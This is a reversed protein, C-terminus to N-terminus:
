ICQMLICQAPHWVQEQHTLAAQTSKLQQQLSLSQELLHSRELDLPLDAAALMDKIAAAVEGAGVQWENFCGLMQGQWWFGQFGSLMHRMDRCISILVSESSYVLAAHPNHQVHSRVHRQLSSAAATAATDPARPNPLVGDDPSEGNGPLDPRHEADHAAWPTTSSGSRFSYVESSLLEAFQGPGVEVLVKFVAM